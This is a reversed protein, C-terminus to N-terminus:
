PPEGGKDEKRKGGVAANSCCLGGSVGRSLCCKRKGAGEEKADKPTAAAERSARYTVATHATVSASVSEAACDALSGRSGDAEWSSSVSRWLQWINLRCHSVQMLLFRTRPRDNAGLRHPKHQEMHKLTFHPVGTPIFNLLIEAITLLSLSRLIPHVTYVWRKLRIGEIKVKKKGRILPNPHPEWRQDMNKLHTHSLRSPPTKCSHQSSNAGQQM